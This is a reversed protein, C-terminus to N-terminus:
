HRVNMRTKPATLHMPVVENDHIAEGVKQKALANSEYFHSSPCWDAHVWVLTTKGSQTEKEFQKATFPQWKIFKDSSAPKKEEGGVLGAISLSAVLCILCLSRNVGPITSM